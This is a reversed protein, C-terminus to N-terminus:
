NCKLLSFGLRFTLVAPPRLPGPGDQPTRSLSLQLLLKIRISLTCCRTCHLTTTDLWTPPLTKWGECVNNTREEGNVTAQHVNWVHTPPRRGNSYVATQSKIVWVEQRNRRLTPMCRCAHRSDVNFHQASIIFLLSKIGTFLHLIDTLQQRPAILLHRLTPIRASSKTTGSYAAAAIGKIHMIM